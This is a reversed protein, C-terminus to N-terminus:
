KTLKVYPTAGENWYLLSGSLETNTKTLSKSNRITTWIIGRINDLTKTQWEQKKKLEKNIWDIPIKEGIKNSSKICSEIHGIMQYVDSGQTFNVQEIVIYKEEAKSKKVVPKKPVSEVEPLWEPDSEDDTDAMGVNVMKEVNELVENYKEMAWGGDPDSVRQTKQIKFDKNVNGCCLKGTPVKDKCWEEEAIREHTRVKVHKNLNLLVLREIQEDQLIDGKVLNDIVKAPAYVILPISDPRDHLIRMAQIMDPITSGGGYYQHTLHWSGDSSVYSRSRGSFDGSKIVIHSFKKAGGNDIFWQLLQPLIIRKGFLFEGTGAVDTVQLKGITISKNKLTNSYLYLGKDCEMLVTWVNSYSASNKFLNYFMKHHKILTKTKHLVIVPHKKSRNYRQLGFIPTEMLEEYVQILNPDEELISTNEDWKGIEHALEMFQVGDRIGKYTPPPRICVVNTNLLDENGSLIDWVTASIEYTQACRQRLYDYEAAKHKPPGPEKIESYAIADAEDTLMVLKSQIEGEEDEEEIEDLMMNICKLQVGNALAIVMKMNKGRLAEKTEEGNKVALIDNGEEDVGTKVLSMKVADVIGITHSSHPIKTVCEKMYTQHELAFRELKAKMHEADQTFNRVIFVVPKGQLLCMLAVGFSFASKGAQPKGTMLSTQAELNVHYFDPFKNILWKYTFETYEDEFKPSNKQHFKVQDFVPTLTKQIMKLQAKLYEKVMTLTVRVKDPTNKQQQLEDYFKRMKEPDEEMVIDGLYTAREALRKRKTNREEGYNKNNKNNVNTTM